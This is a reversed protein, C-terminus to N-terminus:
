RRQPHCQQENHSHFYTMGTNMGNYLHPLQPLSPSLSGGVSPFLGGGPYLLGFDCLTVWCRVRGGRWRELHLRGPAAAEAVTVPRSSTLHGLETGATRQLVKSPARGTWRGARRCGAAPAQPDLESPGAESGRHIAMEGGHGRLPSGAGPQTDPRGSGASGRLRSQPRKDSACLPGRVAPSCISFCGPCRAAAGCGPHGGGEAGPARGGGRRGGGADPKAAGRPLPPPSMAKRGQGIAIHTSDAPGRGGKRKQQLSGTRGGALGGSAGRSHALAHPWTVGSCAPCAVVRPLM